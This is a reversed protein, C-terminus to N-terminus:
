IFLVSLCFPERMSLIIRFSKNKYLFPKGKRPLRNKIRTEQHMKIIPERSWCNKM